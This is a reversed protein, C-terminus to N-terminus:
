VHLYVMCCRCFLLLLEQTETNTLARANALGVVFWLIPKGYYAFYIEIASRCNAGKLEGRAAADSNFSRLSRHLTLRLNDTSAALIDDLESKGEPIMAGRTLTMRPSAAGLSSCAPWYRPQLRDFRM